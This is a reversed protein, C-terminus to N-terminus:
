LILVILPHLEREVVRLMMWATVLDWGMGCGWPKAGELVQFNLSQSIQTWVQQWAWHKLQEAGRWMGEGPCPLAVNCWLLRETLGQSSVCLHSPKPNTRSRSRGGVAWDMSSSCLFCEKLRLLFKSAAPKITSSGTRSGAFALAREGEGRSCSCRIRGRKWLM